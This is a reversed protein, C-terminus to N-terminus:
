KSFSVVYKMIRAERQEEFYYLTKPTRIFLLTKGYSILQQLHYFNVIKECAERASCKFNPWTESCLVKYRRSVM